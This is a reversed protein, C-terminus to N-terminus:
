KTLSKEQEVYYVSYKEKEAPKIISLSRLKFSSRENEKVWQTLFELNNNNNEVKQFNTIWFEGETIKSLIDSLESQELNLDEDVEKMKKVAENMRNVFLDESIGAKLTEASEKYVERYQGFRIQKNLKQIQLQPVKTKGVSTLNSCGLNSYVLAICILITIKNLLKM